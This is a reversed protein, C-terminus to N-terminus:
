RGALAEEVLSYRQSDLEKVLCQYPDTEGSLVLRVAAPSFGSVLAAGLRNQRLPITGTRSCINWFVLRPLQYGAARYRCAIEEFLRATPKSGGEEGCCVAGDFEMDSLVLVTAPIEEQSMNGMRATDLILDFVAEINTNAIEQYGATIELKERLTKGAALSVLRPHSSFTIYTDKFAGGCREGFYVALANAVELCTVSGNGARTRMSGSGDAVCLTTGNGQVYDPLERWLAELAADEPGLESGWRGGQQNYYRHVIDHPFLVGGHIQEEGKAVAELYERRREGDHRLFAKSYLLNARSPVQSYDIEQWGGSSMLTETVKMYARLRSLSRRYQSQTMSLGAALASAQRRTKLSSANVSPLWKACLSVPKGAEMAAIDERLRDGLLRIVQGSLETDLLPLLNDWRTYEPVLKLVAEAAGAHGQALWRLCIRFLRREGLGGRVDGAYFMWKVALRRDEYFARSFRARIEDEEMTRMSSVMFNLDLLERGTTRYGKAGNETVSVNYQDDLTNKLQEMWGM